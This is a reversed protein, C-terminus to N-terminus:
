PSGSSGPKASPPPVASTSPGTAAGTGALCDSIMNDRQYQGSLGRDPLGRLTGTSFPTDRGSSEFTDTRYVEDRNQAAYVEDARQRCAGAAAVDAPTREAGGGCASLGCLILMAGPRLGPRSPNM